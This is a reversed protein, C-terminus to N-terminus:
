YRYYLTAQILFPAEAIRPPTRFKRAPEPPYSIEYRPNQVRQRVIYRRRITRDYPKVDNDLETIVTARSIKQATNPSPQLRTCSRLQLM